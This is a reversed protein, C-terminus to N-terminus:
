VRIKFIKSKMGQIGVLRVAFKVKKAAGTPVEIFGIEMLADNVPYIDLPQGDVQYSFVKNHKPNISPRFQLPLGLNGCTFKIPSSQVVFIEVVALAINGIADGTNRVNIQWLTGGPARTKEFLYIEIQAKKTSYGITILAIAVALLTGMASVFDIVISFDSKELNAKDALVFYFTPFAILSIVLIGICLFIKSTTNM